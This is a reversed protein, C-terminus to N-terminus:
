LLQPRVAAKTTAMKTGKGFSYMVQPVDRVTGGRIDQVVGGAVMSVLATATGGDGLSGLGAKGVAVWKQWESRPTLNAEPTLPAPGNVAEISVDISADSGGELGVFFEYGGGEVFQIQAVGSIEGGDPTTLVFATELGDAVVSLEAAGLSAGDADRPKVIVNYTAGAVDTPDDFGLGVIAYQREIGKPSLETVDLLPSGDKDDILSVDVTASEGAVAARSYAVVRAHGSKTQGVSLRTLEPGCGTRDFEELDVRTDLVSGDPGIVRGLCIGREATMDCIPGKRLAVRYQVRVEGGSLMVEGGGDSMKVAALKAPNWAPDDHTISVRLSGKADTVLLEVRFGLKSTGESTAGPTWPKPAAVSISEGSDGHVFSVLYPGFGPEVAADYRVRADTGTTGTGGLVGDGGIMEYSLEVAVTSPDTGPDLTVSADTFTENMKRDFKTKGKFKKVFKAQGPTAVVLMLLATCFSVIRM